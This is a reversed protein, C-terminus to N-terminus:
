RRRFESVFASISKELHNAIDGRRDLLIDCECRRDGISHACKHDVVLVVDDKLRIAANDRDLVLVTGGEIYGSCNYRDTVYSTGFDSSTIRTVEIM